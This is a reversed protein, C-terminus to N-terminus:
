SGIMLLAEKKAQEAKIKSNEYRAMLVDARDFDKSKLAKHYQHKLMQCDTFWRGYEQDAKYIKDCITPSKNRALLNALRIAVTNLSVEKYILLDKKWLNKLNTSGEILVDGVLIGQEVKIPLIQNNEALHKQASSILKEFRRSIDTM